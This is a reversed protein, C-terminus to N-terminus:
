TTPSPAAGPNLIIRVNSGAAATAEQTVWITTGSVADKNIAWKTNTESSTSPIPNIEKAVAARINSQVTANTWDSTLSITGKAALRKVCSDITALNAKDANDKADSLYGMVSPTVVAALVGLIAVVVILETLTFGKRNKIFKKIM